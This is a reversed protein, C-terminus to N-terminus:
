NCKVVLKSSTSPWSQPGGRCADAEASEAVYVAHLRVDTTSGTEIRTLGSAAVLLWVRGSEDDTEVVASTGRTAIELHMERRRFTIEKAFERHEAVAKQWAPRLRSLSGADCDGEYHRAGGPRNALHFLAAALCAGVRANSMDPTAGAALMRMVQARGCNAIAADNGEPAEILCQKSRAIWTEAADPAITPALRRAGAPIGVVKSAVKSSGAASRVQATCAPLNTASTAYCALVLLHWRLSGKQPMQFRPNM